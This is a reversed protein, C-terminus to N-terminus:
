LLLLTSCLHFLGDSLIRGYENTAWYFTHWQLLQHFITEDLFGAIGIGTLIDTFLVSRVQHRSIQLEQLESEVGKNHSAMTKRRGELYLTRYEM